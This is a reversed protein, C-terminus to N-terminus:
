NLIGEISMTPNSFTYVAGDKFKLTCRGNKSGGMSTAGNLWAKLTHYGHIEYIDDPGYFSYM